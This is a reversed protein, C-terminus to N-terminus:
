KFWADDHQALLLMWIIYYFFLKMTSIIEILWNEIVKQSMLSVSHKIISPALKTVDCLLMPPVQSLHTYPRRVYIYYCFLSNNYFNGWWEDSCLECVRFYYFIKVSILRTKIAMIIVAQYVVRLSLHSFYCDCVCLKKKVM